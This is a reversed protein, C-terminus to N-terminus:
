AWRPTSDSKKLNHRKCLWRLNPGGGGGRSVPRRHDIQLNDKVPCTGYPEDEPGWMCRYELSLLRIKDALTYHKRDYMGYLADALNKIGLVENTDWTRKTRCEMLEKLRKGKEAPARNLSDWDPEPLLLLVREEELISEAGKILDIASFTRARDSKHVNIDSLILEM